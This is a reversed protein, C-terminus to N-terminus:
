PHPLFFVVVFFVSLASDKLSENVGLQIDSPGLFMPHGGLLAISTESAVRTRTSRKSFLIAITKDKLTKEIKHPASHPPKITKKLHHAQYILQSIQHPSLSHLDLFHKIPRESIPITTEPKSHSTTTTYAARLAPLVLKPRLTSATTLSM